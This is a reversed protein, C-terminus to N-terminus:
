AKLILGRILVRYLTKKDHHRPDVLGCYLNYGDVYAITKRM